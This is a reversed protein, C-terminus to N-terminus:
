PWVFRVEKMDKGMKSICESMDYLLDYLSSGTRAGGMAVLEGVQTELTRVREQALRLAAAMGVPCRASLETNETQLQFCRAQLDEIQRDRHTQISSAGDSLREKEIKWAKEREKLKEELELKERRLTRADNERTRVQEELAAIKEEYQRERETQRAPARLVSLTKQQDSVVTSLTKVQLLAFVGESCLQMLFGSCSVQEEWNASESKAERMRLEARQVKRDQAALVSERTCLSANQKKLAENEVRLAELVEENVMGFFASHKRFCMQKPSINKKIREKKSCVGICVDIQM